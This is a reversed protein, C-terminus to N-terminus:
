KGELKKIYSLLNSLVNQDLYIINTTDIGNSAKLMLHTGDTEVYVGDGLYSEKFKPDLKKKQKGPSSNESEWCKDCLKTGTMTTNSTCSKCEVVEEGFKNYNKGNEIKVIKTEM